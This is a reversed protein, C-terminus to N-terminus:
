SESDPWGGGVGRYGLCVDVDVCVFTYSMDWGKETAAKLDEEYLEKDSNHIHIDICMWTSKTLILWTSRGIVPTQLAM